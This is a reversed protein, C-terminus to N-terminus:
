TNCRLEGVPQYSTTITGAGQGRFLIASRYGGVMFGEGDKICVSFNSDTEDLAPDYSSIDRIGSGIDQKYENIGTLGETLKSATSYDPSRYYLRIMKGSNPLRMFVATNSVAAGTRDSARTTTGIKAGWKLEYSAMGTDIVKLQSKELEDRVTTTNSASATAIIYYSDVTSGDKPIKLLKGVLFCESQGAQSSSGKCDEDSARVNVGNVVEEYQSQFFVQLSDTTDTFRQRSVMSGTGFFMASLLLGSIALFIVVEIITFGDEARTM